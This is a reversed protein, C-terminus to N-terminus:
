FPDETMELCEKRIQETTSAISGEWVPDGPPFAKVRVDIRAFPPPVMHRDWTKLRRANRCSSAIMVLPVGARRALATAGEQFSYLPGSPGDPSIGVDNGKKLTRLIEMSAQISRRTTSGRIVQLGLFRFMAVEWAGNRSPSILAALRSPQLYRHVFEATVLSRNHWAMLIRPRTVSELTEIGSDDIHFRWSRLYVRLVWAVPYFVLKQPLSLSYVTPRQTNFPDHNDPRSPSMEANASPM